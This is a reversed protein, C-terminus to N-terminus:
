PSTQCPPTLPPPQSAQCSLAILIAGNSRIPAPRVTTKLAFM